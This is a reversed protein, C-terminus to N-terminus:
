RFDAPHIPRQLTDDGQAALCVLRAVVDVDGIQNALLLILKAQRAFAEADTLGATLGVIEAYLDDPRDINPEVIIATV